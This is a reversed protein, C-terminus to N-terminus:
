RSATDRSSLALLPQGNRAGYLATIGLVDGPQLTSIGSNESFSMLEGSPGPHDLGLVHGIEHALAYKLCHADQGGSRNRLAATGCVRTVWLPEASLCVIGKTIRDTGGIENPVTAVDAYAVGSAMAQVGIVIDADAASPARFFRVNAADEWMALADSLAAQFNTRTLRSRKLLPEVGITQRCNRVGSSSEGGVAVAYSLAVGTGPQAAGWKVSRGDIKLLRYDDAAQAGSGALCVALLCLGAAVIRFM